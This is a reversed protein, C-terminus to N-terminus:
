KRNKITDFILKFICAIVLLVPSAIVAVIIIAIINSIFKELDSPEAEKKNNM